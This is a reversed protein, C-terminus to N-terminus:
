KARARPHIPQNVQYPERGYAELPVHVRGIADSASTQQWGSLKSGTQQQLPDAYDKRCPNEAM